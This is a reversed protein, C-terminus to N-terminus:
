VRLILVWHVCGHQSACNQLLVQLLCRTKIDITFETHTVTYNTDNEWLVFAIKPQMFFFIKDLILSITVESQEVTILLRSM